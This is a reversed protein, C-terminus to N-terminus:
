VNRLRKGCRLISQEALIEMADIYYPPLGHLTRYVSLETCGLIACDCGAQRLFSDIEGFKEVGDFTEISSIVGSPAQKKAALYEDFIYKLYYTTSSKGKTGTIGVVGLKSSPHNYYFDALLAMASRVDTVQLCPADVDGYPKEALYAFAGAGLAARLFEEKFHAGKCIFLTGPAVQRSDCSVLAVERTLPAGAASVLLGEKQLLQIYDGLPYLTLNM